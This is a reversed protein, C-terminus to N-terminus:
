AAAVLCVIVVGGRNPLFDICRVAAQHYALTTSSLSHLSLRCSCPCLFWHCACMPGGGVANCLAGEFMGCAAYPVYADYMSSPFKQHVGASGTHVVLVDSMHPTLLSTDCTTRVAQSPRRPLRLLRHRRGAPVCGAGAGAAGLHGALQRAGRRVAACDPPAPAPSLCPHPRILHIPTCVQHHKGPQSSQM